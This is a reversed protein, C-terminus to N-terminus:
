RPQSGDLPSAMARRRNLRQIAAPLPQSQEALGSSYNNERISGPGTTAEFSSPTATTKISRPALTKTSLRGATTKMPASILSDGRVM